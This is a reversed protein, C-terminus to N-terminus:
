CTGGEGESSWERSLYLPAMGFQITLLFCPEFGPKDRCLAVGLDELRKSSTGPSTHFDSLHSALGRPKPSWMSGASLPGIWYCRRQACMMPCCALRQSPDRCSRHYLLRGQSKFYKCNALSVASTFPEAKGMLSSFQQRTAVLYSVHHRLIVGRLHPTPRNVMDNSGMSGAQCPEEWCKPAPM